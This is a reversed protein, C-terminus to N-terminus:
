QMKEKLQARGRHIWTMVTGMPVELSDAIEQYSLEHLHFLALAERPGEDLSQLLTIARQADHSIAADAVPDGPAATDAPAEQGSEFKRRRLRDLCQRRAIAYLWPGLPRAADFDRLHKFAKLFADQAAEEAESSRLYRRCLTFIQREYRVLLREFARADGAQARQALAREDDAEGM